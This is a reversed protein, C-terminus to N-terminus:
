QRLISISLPRSVGRAIAYQDAAGRLQCDLAHCAVQGLDFGVPSIHADREVGRRVLPSLSWLQVGIAPRLLGCPISRKDARRCPALVPRLEGGVKHRGAFRAGKLSRGKSELVGGFRRRLDFSLGVDM